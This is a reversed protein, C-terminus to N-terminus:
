VSPNIGKLFEDIDLDHYEFASRADEELLIKIQSHIQENLNDLVMVKSNTDQTIPVCDQNANLPTSLKRLKGLAQTLPYLLDSNSRYLLTGYKRVKCTYNVHHKLNATLNSLIWRSSVLKDVEVEEGQLNM